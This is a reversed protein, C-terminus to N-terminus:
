SRSDIYTEDEYVIDAGEQANLMKAHKLFRQYKEYASEGKQTSGVLAQACMSALYYALAMSFESTFYIEKDVRKTYRLTANKANTLIIKEGNESSSIIFKELKYSNEEFVDRACICNNPYDYCFLYQSNQSFDNRLSLKRFTSAFNWDFDKLVFDKAIDYCNNLLIARNDNSETNELPMSIGLINLVINFIKVKSM